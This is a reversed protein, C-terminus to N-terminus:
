SCYGENDFVETKSYQALILKAYAIKDEIRQGSPQQTNWLELNEIRNDARNGNIHHVNEKKTLKRGLHKEMVLTHERVKKNGAAWFIRYGQDNICGEGDIGKVRYNVDDHRKFRSYHKVCLQNTKNCIKSSCGEVKCFITEMSM